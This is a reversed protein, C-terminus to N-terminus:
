VEKAPKPRINVLCVEKSSPIM